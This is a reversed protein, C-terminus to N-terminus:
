LLVLKINIIQESQCAISGASCVPLMYFQWATSLSTATSFAHGAVQM